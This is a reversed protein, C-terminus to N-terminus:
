GAASLPTELAGAAPSPPPEYHVVAVREGSELASVARGAFPSEPGLPLRGIVFAEGGWEFSGVWREGLAAAAFTPAAVASVGLARRIEFSRELHRALQQDFLRVV